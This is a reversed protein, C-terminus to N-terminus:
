LSIQKMNAILPHRGKGDNGHGKGDLGGVLKPGPNTAPQALRVEVRLGDGLNIRCLNAGDVAEGSADAAGEIGEGADRGVNGTKVLRAPRHPEAGTLLLRQEGDVLAEPGLD